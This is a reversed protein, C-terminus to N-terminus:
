KGRHSVTSCLAGSIHYLTANPTEISQTAMVDGITPVIESIFRFGRNNKIINVPIEISKVISSPHAGVTNHPSM